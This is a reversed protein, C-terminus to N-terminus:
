CHPCEKVKGHLHCSQCCISVPKHKRLQELTIKAAVLKTGRGLVRGTSTDVVLFLESHESETHQKM